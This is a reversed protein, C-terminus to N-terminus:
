VTCWRAYASKGSVNREPLIRAHIFVLFQKSMNHQLFPIHIDREDTKALQKGAQSEILPDLAVMMNEGHGTNVLDDVKL